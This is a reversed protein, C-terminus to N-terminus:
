PGEAPEVTWAIFAAAGLSSHIYSTPTGANAPLAGYADNNDNMGIVQTSTGMTDKTQAWRFGGLYSRLSVSGTNANGVWVSLYLGPDIRIATFSGTKVGTTACSLEGADVIRQKPMGDRDARYVGARALGSAEATTVEFSLASLLLPEDVVNWQYRKNGFGGPAITSESTFVFGPWSYRRADTSRKTGFGGRPRYQMRANGIPVGPVVPWPM